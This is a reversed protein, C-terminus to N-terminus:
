IKLPRVKKDYRKWYILLMLFGIFCFGVGVLAPYRYGLGAEIPLGGSYAGLANGLNFAVQVSAAGLMEGGKSNRLLLIQQPASLAFLGATCITMLIVSLVAHQALLFILLLSFGMLLQVTTAVRAPSYIDSLRGSLINGICMGLGALVMIDTMKDPAFGSVSTMLPSIYSYWCFLGGNGLMTALILLWPATSRLFRFQGKFGTDPLPDFYPVWCWVFYLILADLCSILLFTTRWSITQSIYTGLPVGALNAVTMGAIMMAVAASSKGEAAMKSAVISGVGFYAGHPLGSLFRTALLAHYNPAMCSLLNGLAFIAVLVLLIQKLPRKRAALVLLPAGVCVGIAYASIFHGAVPISIDLDRAVDPLIGMMVFESMGLGLTGLALAILGKKM